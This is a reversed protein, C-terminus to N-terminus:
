DTGRYRDTASHATRTVSQSGWMTSVRCTVTASVQVDRVVVPPSLRLPDCNMGDTAARYAAQAAQRAAAGGNHNITAARAADSAAGQVLARGETVRGVSIIFAVMVLLAPALV